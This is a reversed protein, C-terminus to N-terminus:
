HTSTEYKRAEVATDPNESFVGDVGANYFLEYEKIADGYNSPADASKQDGRRLNAPLFNNENRFTWPHVQLGAKHAERVLESPVKISGNEARPFILNKNPGIGDAYSAIEKLGDASLMSASKRKDKKSTWDYPQGSDDILQILKLKTKSRMKQLTSPEFCQIFVPENRDKYGNKQLTDLLKAETSLSLSAFYTPHKVEPYIGIRRNLQKEKKRILDIIEQLTPIEYRNDYITNHQRIQPMREKAKLTKLEALTFDETFWGEEVSGDIEKKCKRTTFEQHEAVDTTGSINNEHRAILAGDKSPVIDPEIFDAGLDIALEYAALTHEPRYGSAGRHAIVLVNSKPDLREALADEAQSPEVQLAFSSLIGFSFLAALKRGGFM